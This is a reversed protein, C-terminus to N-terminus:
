EACWGAPPRGAGGFCLDEPGRGYRADIFERLSEPDLCTALYAHEWALAAVAVDLEPMPAVIVRRPYPEDRCLPDDVEEALAALEEPVGACGEDCRYGLVVAGHEMAHILYGWPVPADYVGWAAWQGFHDGGTPPTSQMTFDTCPPVHGASLAPERYTTVECEAHPAIPAATPHTTVVEVRGDMTTPSSCAALLVLWPLSSRM